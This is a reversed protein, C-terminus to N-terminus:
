MQSPWGPPSTRPIRESSLLLFFDPGADMIRHAPLGAADVDARRATPFLFDSLPHSRVLNMLEHDNAAVILSGIAEDSHVGWERLKQRFAPKRDELRDFDSATMSIGMGALDLLSYTGGSMSPSVIAYRLRALPLVSAYLDDGMDASILENGRNLECYTKLPVSAPQTASAFSLGWPQQPFAIKVAFVACAIALVVAAVVAMPPVAPILYTVSRYHWAFPAALVPALWCASLLAEPSYKKRLQILVPIAIVLMMLLIPDMLLLRKAYFVFHSENTTQPPAGRGYGLIQQQVHETWFWRNHVILQYAYWPASILAAAALAACARGFTARRKAPAFFWYLVFAGIPLVGAVTKTLIAAAVSAAFGWFAGGSKLTPDVFLWYMAAVDLAALLADTLVMAGSVNWLHNSILLVAAAAGTEWSRIKAGILFVLGVAVACLLALPFRLAFRSIGLIRGSAASIWMFLPPKYFSYRGMYRPTLWDGQQVMGIVSNVFFAEDQASIRAVPDLSDGDVGVRAARILLCTSAFVIIWIFGLRM